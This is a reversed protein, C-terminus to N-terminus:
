ENDACGSDGDLFERLTQRANEFESTGSFDYVNAVEGGTELHDDYAAAGEVIFAVEDILDDPLDAGLLGGFTRVADASDRARSVATDAPLGELASVVTGDALHDTGSVFLQLNNCFWPAADGTPTASASTTASSAAASSRSADDEAGTGGCAALLGIATYALALRLLRAPCQSAM